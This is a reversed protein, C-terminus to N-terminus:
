LMAGYMSFLPIIFIFILLAIMCGVLLILAPEILATFRSTIRDVEGQYYRRLQEFVREVQGSREGIAIWQAIHVPLERHKKVASSLVEGKLVDDRCSTVAKRYARNGIVMSVEELGVEVSVGGGVLTEMAYAFNLTEYASLFRGLLPIRLAWGDIRTALEDDRKRLRVAILALTLALAFVGGLVCFALIMTAASRQVREAAAGGLQSFIELLKPVIFAVIGITGLVAM